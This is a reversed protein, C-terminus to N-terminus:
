FIIFLACLFVVYGCQKLGVIVTSIENKALTAMKKNLGVKISVRPADHPQKREGLHRGGKFGQLVDPQDDLGDEQYGEIYHRGEVNVLPLFFPAAPLHQVDGGGGAQGVGDAERSTVELGEPLPFPHRRM